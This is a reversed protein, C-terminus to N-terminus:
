LLSLPSKTPIRPLAPSHSRQSRHCVRTQLREEALGGQSNCVENHHGHHLTTNGVLLGGPPYPHKVLVAQQNLYPQGLRPIGCCLHAGARECRHVISQRCPRSCFTSEWWSGNVCWAGSWMGFVNTSATFTSRGEAIMPSHPSKETTQTKAAKLKNQPAQHGSDANTGHQMEPTVSM